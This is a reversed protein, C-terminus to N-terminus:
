AWLRFFVGDGTTGQVLVSALPQSQGIPLEYKLPLDTPQLVDPTVVNATPVTVWATWTLTGAAATSAPPDALTYTFQTASLVTIQFTGNYAADTAGGVTVLNGTTLGHAASTTATVTLMPPGSTSDTGIALSTLSGSNQQEGRDGVEVNGGNATLLGAAIAKGPYVWLKQFYISLDTTLQQVVNTGTLVVLGQRRKTVKCCKGDNAIQVAGHSM